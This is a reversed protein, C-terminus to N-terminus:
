YRFKFQLAGSHECFWVKIGSIIMGRDDHVFFREQRWGMVLGNAVNEIQNLVETSLIEIGVFQQLATRAQAKATALEM